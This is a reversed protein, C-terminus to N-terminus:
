SVKTQMRGVHSRFDSHVYSFTLAGLRTAFFAAKIAVSDLISM